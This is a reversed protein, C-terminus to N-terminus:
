IKKWVKKKVEVQKAEYVRGGDWTVGDYSAYYGDCKVFFSDENKKSFKMVIYYNEGMGEGGVTEEEEIKFGAAELKDYEIDYDPDQGKEVVQEKMFEIVEKKNVKNRRKKTTFNYTNHGMAGSGHLYNGNLIHNKCSECIDIDCNSLYPKVGRGETQDTHFIVQIMTPNQTKMDEGCVDCFFPLLIQNKGM